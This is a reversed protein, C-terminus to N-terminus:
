AAPRHILGRLAMAAAEAVATDPIYRNDFRLLAAAIRELYVSRKEIPLTRATVMVIKLQTDNLSIM